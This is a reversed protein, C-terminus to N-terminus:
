LRACHDINNSGLVARTFKQTIYNDENTCKASAIVAIQDGPYSALKRAVFEIAKGWSVKSFRNNNKILPETLRETHHVFESIGYRGKVCLRGRNAQSSRSGQVSVIKGDRIGLYMM